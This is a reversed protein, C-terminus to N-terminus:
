PKPNLIVRVWLDGLLDEFAFGQYNNMVSEHPIFHHFSATCECDANLVGCKFCFKCGCRCTLKDCGGEMKEIYVGCHPCRRLGESHMESHADADM